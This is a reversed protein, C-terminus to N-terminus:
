PTKEFQLNVLILQPAKVVSEQGWTAEEETQNLGPHPGLTQLEVSSGPAAWHSVSKLLEM